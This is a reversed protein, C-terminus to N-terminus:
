TDEKDDPSSLGFAERLIAIDEPRLTQREVSGRLYQIPNHMLKKCLAKSFGEMAAFHDETLKGRHKEIEQVRVSEFFRAIEGITPMVQMTHMWAEWESLVEEIIAEARPIERQREKLNERVVQQLDDINFLFVGSEDSVSGEVNRPNSIDLITLSRYSRAKMVRKIREADVLPKPSGTAFLVIDATKLVSELDEMPRYTGSFKGALNQGRDAGRNVVVFRSAGAAKFHEAAGEATEGAGVLAIELKKFDGFIRRSLEVAASSISVAGDCLSTETRVRKGARIAYQYLRDLIPSKGAIDLLQRHTEKVQSLIQDEGLALSEISAAVRFLHRAAERGRYHIPCFTEDGVFSKTQTVFDSFGQWDLDEPAGFLYFETRNCTSLVAVETQLGDRVRPIFQEADERSFALADRLELSTNRHSFSFLSINPTKSM